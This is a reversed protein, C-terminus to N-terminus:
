ISDWFTSDILYRTPPMKEMTVMMSDSINPRDLSMFYDRSCIYSAVLGVTSAMIVMGLLILHKKLNIKIAINYNYYALGILANNISVFLSMQRTNM